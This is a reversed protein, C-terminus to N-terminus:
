LVPPPKLARDSVYILNFIFTFPKPKYPCILLTSTRRRTVPISAKTRTTRYVMALWASAFAPDFPVYHLCLFWSCGYKFCLSLLQERCVCFPLLSAFCGVFSQRGFLLIYRSRVEVDVFTVRVLAEQLSSMMRRATADAGGIKAARWPRHGAGATFAARLM